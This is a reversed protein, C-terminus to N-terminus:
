QWVSISKRRIVILLLASPKRLRDLEFIRTHRNISSLM